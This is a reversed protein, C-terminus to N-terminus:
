APELGPPRVLGSRLVEPAAVGLGGLRVLTGERFGDLALMAGSVSKSM